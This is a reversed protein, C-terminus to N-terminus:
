VIPIKKWRCFPSNYHRSPRQVSNDELGHIWVLGRFYMLSVLHHNGHGATSADVLWGRWAEGFSPQPSPVLFGFSSHLRIEELVFCTVHELPNQLPNTNRGKVMTAGNTCAAPIRGLLLFFIPLGPFHAARPNSKILSWNPGTLWAELIM